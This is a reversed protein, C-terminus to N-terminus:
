RARGRGRAYENRVTMSGEPVDDEDDDSGLSRRKARVKDFHRGLEDDLHWMWSPPMEDETLNERWSLIVSAYNIADIM